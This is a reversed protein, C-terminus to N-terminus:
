EGTSRTKGDRDKSSKGQREKEVEERTKLILQKLKEDVETLHDTEKTFDHYVNNQMNFSVTKLGRPRKKTTTQVQINKVTNEITTRMLTAEGEGYDEILEGHGFKYKKEVREAATLKRRYKLLTLQLIKLIVLLFIVMKIFTLVQQGLDHTPIHTHGHTHPHAHFEDRAM